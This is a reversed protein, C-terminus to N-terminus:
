SEAQQAKLEKIEVLMAKHVKALDQGHKRALESFLLLQKKTRMEAKAEKGMAEVVGLWAGDGDVTRALERAGDLVTDIKGVREEYVGQATELESGEVKSVKCRAKILSEVPAVLGELAKRLGAVAERRAVLAQVEPSLVVAPATNPDAAMADQLRAEVHEGSYMPVEKGGDSLWSQPSFM